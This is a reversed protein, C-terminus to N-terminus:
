KFKIQKPESYSSKPRRTKKEVIYYVPEQPQEAPTKKEEKKEPAPPPTKRLTDTGLKALKLLHVCLFCFAFLFIIWLFGQAPLSLLLRNLIKM